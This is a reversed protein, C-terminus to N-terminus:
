NTVVTKSPNWGKTVKEIVGWDGKDEEPPKKKILIEEIAESDQGDAHKLDYGQVLGGNYLFTTPCLVEFEEGIYQWCDPHVDHRSLNPNVIVIDGRNFKPM